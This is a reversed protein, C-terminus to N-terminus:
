AAPSVSPGASAGPKPAFMARVTDTARQIIEAVTKSIDDLMTKGENRSPTSSAREGIESDLKEFKATM